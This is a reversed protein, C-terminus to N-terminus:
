KTGAAGDGSKKSEPCDTALHGLKGCNYCNMKSVDRHYYKQADDTMYNAKAPPRRGYSPKRKHYAAADELEVANGRATARKRHYERARKEDVALMKKEIAEFTVNEGSERKAMLLEVAVQYNGGSNCNIGALM